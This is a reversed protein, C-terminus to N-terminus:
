EPLHLRIKDRGADVLAVTEADKEILETVLGVMFRFHQGIATRGPGSHVVGHSQGHAVARGINPEESQGVTGDGRGIGVRVEPCLADLDNSAGILRTEELSNLPEETM